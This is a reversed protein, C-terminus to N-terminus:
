ATRTDPSRNVGGVATAARAWNRVDNWLVPWYRGCPCLWGIVTQTDTSNFVALAQGGCDWCVGNPQITDHKSM